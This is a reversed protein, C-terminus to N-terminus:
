GAILGDTLGLSCIKPVNKRSDTSKFAFIEGAGM